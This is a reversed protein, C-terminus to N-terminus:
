GVGMKATFLELSRQLADSPDSAWVPFIYTGSRDSINAFYNAPETPAGQRVLWLFGRNTLAQEVLRITDPLNKMEM